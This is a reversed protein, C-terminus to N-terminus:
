KTGKKSNKKERIAIKVALEAVAELVQKTLEVPDPAYSRYDMWDLLSM